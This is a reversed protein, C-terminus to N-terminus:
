ITVKKIESEILISLIGVMLINFGIDYFLFISFIHLVLFSVFYYIQTNKFFNSILGFISFLFVIPILLELSHTFFSGYISNFRLNQAFFDLLPKSGVIFYNSKSILNLILVFYIIQIQVRLILLNRPFVSLWFLAAYLVAVPLSYILLDNQIFILLLTFTCIMALRSCKRIAIFISTAILYCNPSDFYITFFLICVISFILQSKEAFIM